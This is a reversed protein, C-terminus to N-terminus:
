KGYRIRPDLWAYTMDVIFNIVLFWTTILLILDQTMPYDRVVISDILHSGIGPLVFITEMVVTGGLLTGFQIGAITVVPLIANRLAHRSLVVGTRLGKAWATRIYEQRLVELVASRTMRSVIAAFYYGLVLSPFITQKLNQVPDQFFGTYGVPPIWHFVLTLLLVILTATWFTPMTIGAISLVRLVYDLWTDQRLASLVGTPIAILLAIGVSMLAIQITIPLRESIEDVIKRNTWLSKGADFRLLGGVWVLYQEHFPRDLGLEHRISQLYEPSVSGKGGPGVFYMMAVDGPIVRMLTFVLVSSAAITPVFLLLRRAIYQRM